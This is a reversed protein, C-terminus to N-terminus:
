GEPFREALDEKSLEHDLIRAPLGDLDVDRKGKTKSRKYSSIIVETIEPESAYSDKLYEAENFADFLSLQGDIGNLGSEAKRGFQRQNTIRIQETLLEIQRNNDALTSNATDLQSKLSDLQSQLAAIVILLADKNLTDLKEISLDALDIM